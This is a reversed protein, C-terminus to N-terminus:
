WNRWICSPICVGIDIYWRRDIATNYSLDPKVYIAIYSLYHYYYTEGTNPDASAILLHHSQTKVYAYTTSAGQSAVYPPHSNCCSTATSIGDGDTAYSDPNEVWVYNYLAYFTGRTCTTAVKSVGLYWSLCKEIFKGVPNLQEPHINGKNKSIRNIINLTTPRYIVETTELYM